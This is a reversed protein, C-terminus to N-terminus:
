TQECPVVEEYPFSASRHERGSVGFYRWIGADSQEIAVVEFNLVNFVAVRSGVYTLEACEGWRFNRM